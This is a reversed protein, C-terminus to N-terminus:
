IQLHFAQVSGFMVHCALFAMMLCRSSHTVSGGGPMSLQIIQSAKMEQPEQMM